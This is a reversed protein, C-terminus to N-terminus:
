TSGAYVGGLSYNDYNHGSNHEIDILRAPTGSMLFSHSVGQRLGSTMIEKAMGKLIVAM